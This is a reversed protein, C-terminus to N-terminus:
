WFTFRFKLRLVVCFVTLSKLFEVIKLDVVTERSPYITQYNGCFCLMITKTEAQSQLDVFTCPCFL